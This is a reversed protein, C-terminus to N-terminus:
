YDDQYGFVKILVYFEIQQFKELKGIGVKDNWVVLLDCMDYGMREM